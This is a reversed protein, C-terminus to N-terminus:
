ARRPRFIAFGAFAVLGAAAPEPIPSLIYYSYGNAGAGEVLIQGANNIDIGRVLKVGPIPDILTNMDIPTRDGNLYAVAAENGVEDWCIGVISESNNLGAVATTTFGPLGVLEELSDGHAIFSSFTRQGDRSLTGTITGEDNIGVADTVPFGDWNLLELQTGYGMLAGAGGGYKGVYQGHVNIDFVNGSAGPLDHIAALQDNQWVAIRTTPSGNPLPELPYFARGVTVSGTTVLASGFQQPLPLISIAKSSTWHVPTPYDDDSYRVFGVADGAPTVGMATARESQPPLSLYHFEGSSNWILPIAFPNGGLFASGPVQGIGDISVTYRAYANTPSQLTTVLMRSQALGTASLLFFISITVCNRNVFSFRGIVQVM